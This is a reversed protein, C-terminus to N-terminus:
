LTHMRSSNRSAGGGIEVNQVLGVSSAAPVSSQQHTKTAKDDLMHNASYETSSVQERPKNSSIIGEVFALSSDSDVFPRIIIDYAFSGLTKLLSFVNFISKNAYHRKANKAIVAPFFVISSVFALPIKLLINM